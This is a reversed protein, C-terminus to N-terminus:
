IGVHVGRQADRESVMMVMSSMGSPVPCFTARQRARLNFNDDIAHDVIPRRDAPTRRRDRPDRAILPIEGLFETGLKEGGPPRRWPRFHRLPTGCNPCCFYSMNEVMGLVPVNVKRSCRSAAGRM